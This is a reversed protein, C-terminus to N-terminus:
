GKVLDAILVLVLGMIQLAVATSRYRESRRQAKAKEIILRDREETLENHRKLWDVQLGGFIEIFENLAAADGAETRVGLDTWHKVQKESPVRGTAASNRDSVSQAVCQAIEQALGAAINDPPNTCQLLALLTQAHQWEISSHQFFHLGFQRSEEKALIAEDLEVRTRDIRALLYGTGFASLIVFASGIITLGLYWIM